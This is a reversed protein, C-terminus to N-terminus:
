NHDMATAYHFWYSVMMRGTKEPVQVQMYTVFVFIYSYTGTWIWSFYDIDYQCVHIEGM